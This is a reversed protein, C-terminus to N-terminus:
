KVQSFSGVQARQRAEKKMGTSRQKQQKEIPRLISVVPLHDSPFVPDPFGISKAQKISWVRLDSFAAGGPANNSVMPSIAESPIFVSSSKTPLRIMRSSPVNPQNVTITESHIENVQNQGSEIMWRLVDTQEIDSHQFYGGLLGTVQFDEQTYWIYDIVGNFNATHNTFPLAPGPYINSNTEPSSDPVYL